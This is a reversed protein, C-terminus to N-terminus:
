AIGEFLRRRIRERRERRATLWPLLRLLLTM